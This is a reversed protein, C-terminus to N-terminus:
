GTREVVDGIGSYRTSTTPTRTPVGALTHCARGGGAETNNRGCELQQRAEHGRVRINQGDKNTEDFDQQKSRTRTAM